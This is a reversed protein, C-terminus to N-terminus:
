SRQLMKGDLAAGRRKASSQKSSKSLPRTTLKEIESFGAFFFRGVLNVLLYGLAISLPSALLMVVTQQFTPSAAFAKLTTAVLQM